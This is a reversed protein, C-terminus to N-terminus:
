EGDDQRDGAEKNIKKFYLNTYSMTVKTINDYV